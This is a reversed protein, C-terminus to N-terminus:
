RFGRPEYPDYETRVEFDDSSEPMDSPIQGHERCVLWWGRNEPQLFTKKGAAICNACLYVPQRTTGAATKERYCVGGRVTTYREYGAIESEFSERQRLQHELERVRDALAANEQSLTRNAEIAQLSATLVEVYKATFNAKADAILLEDRADAAVKVLDFTTKFAALAAILDM